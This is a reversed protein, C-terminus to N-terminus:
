QIELTVVAKSPISVVIEDGDHRFGTFEELAVEESKGFDNYAQMTEANIITGSISRISDIGRLSCSIETASYPDFNTISLHTKGEEDRSASASVAPISRDGYTYEGCEVDVPLMTADQHVKYMKFVYYSPTLVMQEEKTLIMAQLVNITQAINAMRVRECHNHFIDFTSSAVLADRLTNQQYLFRRNTGPEVDYWTGWEDVILAIRKEPDYFDMIDSHRTIIEDMRLAEELVAFWEHEGFETASESIEDEIDRALMYYHLSLGDMSRRNQEDNMLIETWPYNAFYDEGFNATAGGAVRYIRNQGYNRCYTVYRRYQDRYFEPRMRGGCGWSENGIAWYKVNWPEERGNKKRLETMPSMNNSNVYEVWQSLEKVTGSGVNGCIYPECELLECMDLFEHTGFSNDETVGGWNTNIMSPREAKPGIGDMWHYEDAFCGGPWRLNPIRIERLANVVDTRVGGTNPIDSDEGVWFGDYICRGLHEAFHGYIHKSIQHKGLDVNVVIKNSPQQANVAIIIFLFMLLVTISIVIKKM